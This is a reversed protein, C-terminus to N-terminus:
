YQMIEPFDTLIQLALAKAGYTSPHVNDSSQYDYSEGYGHWQGEANSGVAKAWDIYRCESSERIWNSYSDKYKYSTTNLPQPITTLILTIGYTNCLAKINTVYSQWNALSANDNMGLCWVIYKPKSISLCRQLDSYAGASSQGPYGQVLTNLYGWEKLWYLVRNQSTIGFYSDGFLWVAKSFNSNTCAFEVNTLSAGNSTVRPTGNNSSSDIETTFTDTLTQIIFKWKNYSIDIVIKIFSEITLGHAVTSVTTETGAAYTKFILNDSNIEAYGATYDTQGKGITIGNGWSTVDAYLTIKDGFKLSKPYNTLEIEGGDVMTDATDSVIGNWLRSTIPKLTNLNNFSEEDIGALIDENRVKEYFPAIGISEQGKAFSLSDINSNLASIRIYKANLPSQVPTESLIQAIGSIYVKDEDFWACQGTIVNTCYYTSGEVEIYESASYDSSSKLNGSNQLIYYNNLCADKNFLNLSKIHIGKLQSPTISDEKVNRTGVCLDPLYLDDKVFTIVFTGSTTSRITTIDSSTKRIEVIANFSNFQEQSETGYNTYFGFSEKSPMSVIIHSGQPITFPLTKNSWATVTMELDKGWGLIVSANMDKSVDNFVDYVGGSKVLNDSGATPEADIGVENVEEGSAFTQVDSTDADTGSDAWNNDTTATADYVYISWTTAPSADKVYASDGETATHAAKLTALDPWWGKFHKQLAQQVDSSLDSEPIGTQPKQYATDAKAGQSATAFDSAKSGSDTINGNSDLGALNGSTANSVKDAKGSIDIPDGGGLVDNGKEDTISVVKNQINKDDAISIRYKGHKYKVGM